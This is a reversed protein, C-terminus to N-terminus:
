GADGAVAGLGAAGGSASLWLGCGAVSVIQLQCAM